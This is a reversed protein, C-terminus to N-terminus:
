RCVREAESHIRYPDDPTESTEPMDLNFLTMELTLYCHLYLPYVFQDNKGESIRAKLKLIVM